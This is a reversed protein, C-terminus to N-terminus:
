AANANLQGRAGVAELLDSLRFETVGTVSDAAGYYVLVTEGREVIGTPFVVDPVFGNLEFDAEPVFIAQSVGITRSPDNADLLLLGGSYRGVRTEGPRRDNGHYFELWGASTRIPPAGGGVRGVEWSQSGRHLPAHGGWNLADASSAIWMEPRTLTTSISPRHLVVYRGNIKEPFFVVDKNDPCFIVGHRRYTRFDRTTALMTAPGHKSVGVYTIYYEDGIKTVRPDEVGFEELPGEPFFRTTGVRDVTRGDRSEVVCLHSVFTLRVVNNHKFRVSRTDERIVESETVWDIAVRRADNDWRPLGIWGPRDERPTEAIRVILVVGEPTDAAAPNFAGVVSLDDQSPPVDEPRLLCRTFLRRISM